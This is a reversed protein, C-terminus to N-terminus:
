AHVERETLRVVPLGFKELLFRDRSVYKGPNEAENLRHWYEGDAEFAIHCEPIYVDVRFRGFHKERVTCFGAEFLFRALVREIATNRLPPLPIKVKGQEILALTIARQKARLRKSRWTRRNSDRQKRRTEESVVRGKRIRSLREKTELSLPKGLRAQRIKQRTEVSRIRGSQFRRCAERQEASRNREILAQRRSDDPAWPVQYRKLAAMSPSRGM